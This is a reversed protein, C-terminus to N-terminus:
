EALQELQWPKGIKTPEDVDPLEVGQAEGIARLLQYNAVGGKNVEDTLSLLFGSIVRINHRQEKREAIADERENSIIAQNTTVRESVDRLDAFLTWLMMGVVVFALAILSGLVVRV